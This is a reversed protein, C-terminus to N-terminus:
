KKRATFMETVSPAVKEVTRGVVYGSLGYQVIELIKMVFDHELQHGNVYGGTWVVTGIMAVFFLMTLPRWSRTLWSSAQAETKIVDAQTAAWQQDLEALKITLTQQLSVLERHAKLKEDDSTNLNDIIGGVSGILDKLPGGLFGFLKGV